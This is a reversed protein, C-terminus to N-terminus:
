IKNWHQTKAHPTRDSYAAVNELHREHEVTQLQAPNTAHPVSNKQHVAPISILCISLLFGGIALGSELFLSLYSNKFKNLM